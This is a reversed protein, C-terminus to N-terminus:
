LSFFHMKKCTNGWKKKKNKCIMNIIFLIKKKFADMVIRGINKFKNSVTKQNKKNDAKSNKQYYINVKYSEIYIIDPSNLKISINRQM